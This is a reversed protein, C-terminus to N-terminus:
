TRELSVKLTPLHNALSLFSKILCKGEEFHLWSAVEEDNSRPPVFLPARNESKSCLSTTASCAQLFSEWFGTSVVVSAKRFPSSAASDFRDLWSKRWYTGEWTTIKELLFLTSHSMFLFRVIKGLKQESSNYFLIDTSASWWELPAAYFVLIIINFFPSPFILYFLDWEHQVKWM